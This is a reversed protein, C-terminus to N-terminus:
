ISFTEMILSWHYVGSSVWFCVCFFAGCFCFFGVWFRPSRLDITRRSSSSHLRPQISCQRYHLMPTSWHLEPMSQKRQCQFGSPNLWTDPFGPLFGGRQPAELLVIIGFLGSVPTSSATRYMSCWAQEWRSSNKWTHEVWSMGDWWLCIGLTPHPDWRVPQATKWAQSSHRQSLLSCCLPEVPCQELERGTWM